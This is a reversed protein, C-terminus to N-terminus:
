GVISGAEGRDFMTELLGSKKIIITIAIPAEIAAVTLVALLVLCVWGTSATTEGSDLLGLVDSSVSSHLLYQM